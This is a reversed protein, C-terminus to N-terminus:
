DFRCSVRIRYFIMYVFSRTKKNIRKNIIKLKLPFYKVRRGAGVLFVCYLSPSPKVKILRLCM